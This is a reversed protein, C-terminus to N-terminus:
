TKDQQCFSLMTDLCEMKRKERFKTRFEHTSIPCIITQRRNKTPLWVSGLVFVGEGRVELNEPRLEINFIVIYVPLAKIVLKYLLYKIDAQQCTRPRDACPMQACNIGCDVKLGM